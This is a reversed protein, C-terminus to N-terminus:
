CFRNKPLHDTKGQFTFLESGTEGGGTLTDTRFARPRLGTRRGVGAPRKTSGWAGFVKPTRRSASRCAGGVASGAGQIEAVLSNLGHLRLRILLGDRSVLVEEILLRVIRQREAPFLEEWLPDLKQIADRVEDETPGSALAETTHGTARSIVRLRRAYGAM